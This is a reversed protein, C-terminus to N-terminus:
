IRILQQPNDCAMPKEELVDPVANAGLRRQKSTFFSWARNVKVKAVARVISRHFRDLAVWAPRIEAGSNSSSDVTRRQPLPAPLPPTGDNCM